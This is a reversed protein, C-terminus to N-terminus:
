HTRIEKLIEKTTMGKFPNAKKDAKDLMRWFRRIRRDFDPNDFIYKRKM